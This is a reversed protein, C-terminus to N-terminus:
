FNKQYKKSLLKRLLIKNQNKGFKYQNNLNIGFKVVNKDLFPVRTELSCAMSARDIKVLIDDPLYTVLDAIMMKDEFSNGITWIQSLIESNHDYESDFKIYKNNSNRTIDKYMEIDTSKKLTKKFKIIKDKPSKFQYKSTLFPSILNYLSEISNSTLLNFLKTLFYNNRIKLAKPAWIYRNYGGFLEDGGDGSLVVGVKEKAFRSMFLTPIQSTDAYPEDYVEVLNPISHEINKYDIMLQYHNSDIFESIKKSFSSEDYQKNKFGISFTNIKKLIQNCIHHLLLHTSEELYFVVSQFM